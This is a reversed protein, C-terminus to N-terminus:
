IVHIRLGCESVTGVSRDRLMVVLITSTFDLRSMKKVVFQALFDQLEKAINHAQLIFLIHKLSNYDSDLKNVM